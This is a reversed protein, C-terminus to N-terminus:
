IAEYIELGEHPRFLDEYKHNKKLHLVFYLCWVSTIIGALTNSVFMAIGCAEYNMDVVYMLLMITPLRFGFLNLMSMFSTIKTKGFGYFLANSAGSLGTFAIDLCEWKFINSIIVRYDEDSGAFFGAVSSRSIFLATMFVLSVAEVLLMNCLYFKLIRKGNQNGYNQSVITSGGDEFSNIINTPLGAMTNSIGLAGVVQKGYHASAISNLYVKGFHFLFRGIFVPLSLKIIVMVNSKDLNLSKPTIRLINSPLIALVLMIVMMFLQAVMTAVALWTITVNDFPGYAFLTSLGIKIIIVGINLIFIRFTNGKSKEFAIFVSNLTIIFLNIMQVDFYGLANDITTKDTKLLKLFPVAFPIFLLTIGAIILAISFVTNASRRASDINNEGIKKAILIGGGTAIAGGITQIMNKIQDLVVVDAADGIDAVQVIMMDYIGYLYNCLNYFVIPLAIYLITKLMKDNLIMDRKKLQREEKTM